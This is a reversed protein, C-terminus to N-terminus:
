TSNIVVFFNEIHQPFSRHTPLKYIDHKIKCTANPNFFGNELVEFQTGLFKSKSCAYTTGIIGRM